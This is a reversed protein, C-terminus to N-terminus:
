NLNAIQLQQSDHQLQQGLRYLDECAFYLMDDLTLVPSVGAATALQLVSPMALSLDISIQGVSRLEAPMRLEPMQADM